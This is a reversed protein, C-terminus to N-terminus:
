FINRHYFVGCRELILGVWRGRLYNSLVLPKPESPNIIAAVEPALQRTPPPPFPPCISKLDLLLPTAELLLLTLTYGITLQSIHPKRDYFYIKISFISIKVRLVLM